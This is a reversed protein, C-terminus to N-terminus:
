TTATGGHRGGVSITAVMPGHGSPRQKAHLYVTALQGSALQHVNCTVTLRKIYCEHHEPRQVGRQNRIWYMHHPKSGEPLTATFTVMDVPKEKGTNHIRYHYLREQVTAEYHSDGELMVSHAPSREPMKVKLFDTVRHTLYEKGHPDVTRGYELGSFGSSASSSTHEHGDPRIRALRTPGAPAQRPKGFEADNVFTSRFSGKKESTTPRPGSTEWDSNEARGQVSRRLLEREFAFVDERSRANGMEDYLGSGSMPPLDPAQMRRNARPGPSISATADTAVTQQAAPANTEARVPARGVHNKPVAAPGAGQPFGGAPKVDGLLASRAAGQLRRGIGRPVSPFAQPDVGPFRAGNSAPQGVKRKLLGASGVNAGPKRAGFSVGSVGVLLCLVTVSVTISPGM